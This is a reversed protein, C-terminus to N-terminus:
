IQNLICYMCCVYYIVCGINFITLRDSQEPGGQFIIMNGLTVATEQPHHLLPHQVQGDDGVEGGGTGGLEGGGDAGGARM